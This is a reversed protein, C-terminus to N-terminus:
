AALSKKASLVAPVAYPGAALRTLYGRQKLPGFSFIAHGPAGAQRAAEIRQVIVNFDDYDAGIGPLVARGYTSAMFDALLVQWKDFEDAVSGYMMPAIADVHGAALWGKSDQYYDDFGTSIKWGWKNQYYPWVAASIVANPRAARVQAKVRRVLDTVRDRQWQDRQATKASGAAANSAPDFSYPRNAYRILDLHLGDIAYRKALDAVVAVVHDQVQDVGPSAWLPQGWSLPMPQGSQDHQRWGNGLAFQGPHDAYAPGYTFRDFPHPPTSAPPALQGYTSNPPSVWFTYANVYAHVELGAPKAKDLLRALPDWGPDRGQTGWLSGTLRAAWPELGPRYYADGQGRVQFFITNFGAAAIDSVLQDIAEPPPAKGVQTWDYRSVWVARREVPRRPHFDIDRELKNNQHSIEDYRNVDDVIAMIRHPGALALAQVARITATAGAAMPTATGFTAFQGDVFFAVGVVDPTPAAGINGVAATLIVKGASDTEYDIATVVSDPLKVEEKKFVEFTLEFRNNDESLEPYRNVDDVVALLRHKGASARWPSVARVARTEDPGMASTNGFTIYQGDVLFAVGVVEGTPASGINKVQAEFTLENGETFRGAGLSVGVIVSDALRQPAAGFDIMEIRSNNQESQEPFRNVDDVIATIKHLGTLALPQVARIASSQGAPLAAVVGYTAFKDDVLFAVGVVDLTGASGINEVLAALRIQDAETREFAIDKVVVDSLLPPPAAAVQFEIELTNNTESIEPFRNVDDVVATLRHGGAAAEWPSVAKIITSAGPALPGATGFTIYRGDIQFAVGVTAGTDASGINRVTAAFTLRDGAVPQPAGASLATVIADPRLTATAQVGLEKLLFQRRRRIWDKLRDREQDFQANTPWKNVDLHAAGTIEAYYRDIKPFLKAETFEGALLESLRARLREFYTANNFVRQSLANGLPATGKISTGESLDDCLGGCWNNWNRGWTLDYDRPMVEWRDDEVRNHLYYNKHYNDNAQILTNVALWDLYSDVDLWDDLYRAITTADWSHIARVFTDLDSYDETDADAIEIREWGFISQIVGAAWGSAVVKKTNEKNYLIRLVHDPQPELAAGIFQGNVIGGDAKYLTGIQRNRNTFFYDDIHDLGTYLGRHLLRGDTSLVSFDVHWANGAVVRTANFLDFSLRERILSKDTYSASLDIRGISGRYLNKNKFKIKFSKKPYNLSTTGRFTIEGKPYRVGDVELEANINEKLWYNRVMNDYDAQDVFANIVMVM